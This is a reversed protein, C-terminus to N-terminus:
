LLAESAPAVAIMSDNHHIFRGKMRHYICVLCFRIIEIIRWIALFDTYELLHEPIQDILM